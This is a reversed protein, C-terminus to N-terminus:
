HFAVPIAPTAALATTLTARAQSWADHLACTQGQGCPLHHAVCQGNATPGDVAEIVQLVSVRHAEPTLTYGGTPGPISAVWGAKVLPGVVQPVFGRTAQLADALEPAKLRKGVPALLAMAQVALEARRTVELRM